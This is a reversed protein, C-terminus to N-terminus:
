ISDKPTKIKVNPMINEKQTIRSKYLEIFPIWKTFKFYWKDYLANNKYFCFIMMCLLAM